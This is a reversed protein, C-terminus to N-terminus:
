AAHAAEGNDLLARVVRDMASGRSGKVLVQLRTPADAGTPAAEAALKEGGGSPSAASAGAAFDTGLFVAIDARLAEALAEHTDFKRGGEGFAEAGAASLGGRAYRRASGEEKGRRGARGELWRADGGRGGMAGVGGWVEGWGGGGVGRVWRKCGRSARRRRGGVPRSMCRSRTTALSACTAWCWGPKARRRRWRTSPPTSRAPTPTTATTSWCWTAPCATACWGAPLRGQRACASSSTTWSRCLTTYPFLTDTRTSRPPRRIM